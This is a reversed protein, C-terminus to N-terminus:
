VRILRCTDTLVLSMRSSLGATSEAPSQRYLTLLVDELDKYFLYHVPTQGLDSPLVTMHDRQLGNM